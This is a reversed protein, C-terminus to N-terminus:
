FVSFTKLKSMSQPIEHKCFLAELNIVSLVKLWVSAMLLCEFSEMYIKIGNLDTRIKSTVNLELVSEIAKKIASLNRGFPKVSEVRASWRTNSMSHLSSGVNEKLIEWTQPSGSIIDYLKQVVGFFTIVEPCCEAAHVGCPNL